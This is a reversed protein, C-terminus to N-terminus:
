FLVCPESSRCRSMEDRLKQLEKELGAAEGRFGERLLREQEQLKLDLMRQQEALMKRRDEEMRATLQQVHEQHSREQDQLLQETKAQMEKRLQAVREAAEARAREAEIERQRDTLSQDAQLIAQAATEKSKLFQQLVEAAMIGKEPGLWYREVMERQDDLLRQYGGPVSYSGECIREELEQSLEQLLASCRDSSAQENRRCLEARKSDLRDKLQQQYQQEDDKFARAMFARLAERECQAHLEM